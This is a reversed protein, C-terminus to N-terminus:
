RAAEVTSARLARRLSPPTLRRLEAWRGPRRTHAVGLAFKSVPEAQLGLARVLRRMWLPELANYKLELVIWDPPLLALPCDGRLDYPDDTEAAGVWHDLTLRSTGDVFTERLYDVRCVVGMNARDVAQVWRRAIRQETAGQVLGVAAQWPKPGPLQAWTDTDGVMVRHKIVRGGLKRKAELFVPRVSGPYDYTRIRLRNRIRRDDLREGYGRLKADDVYLSTVRYGRPLAGDADRLHELETLERAHRDSEVHGAALALVESRLETPIAYKLEARGESM